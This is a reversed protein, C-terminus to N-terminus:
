SLPVVHRWGGAMKGPPLVLFGDLACPSSEDSRAVCDVVAEATARPPRARGDMRVGASSRLTERSGSCHSSLKARLFPQSDSVRLLAPFFTSRM